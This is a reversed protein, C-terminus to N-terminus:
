NFALLIIERKTQMRTRSKLELNQDRHNGEEFMEALSFSHASAMAPSALYYFYKHSDSKVSFYQSYVNNEREERLM